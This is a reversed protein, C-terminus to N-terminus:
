VQSEWYEDILTTVQEIFQPLLQYLRTEWNPCNGRFKMELVSPNKRIFEEASEYPGCSLVYALLKLQGANTRFRQAMNGIIWTLASQNSDRPVHGVYVGNVFVKM